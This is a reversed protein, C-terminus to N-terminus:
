VEENNKFVCTCIDEYQYVGTGYPEETAEAEAYGTGNCYECNEDVIFKFDKTKM